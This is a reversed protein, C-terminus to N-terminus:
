SGRNEEDIEEKIEEPPPPKKPAPEEEESSCGESDREDEEDKCQAQAESSLQKLLNKNLMTKKSEWFAQLVFKGVDSLDKQSFHKGAIKGM